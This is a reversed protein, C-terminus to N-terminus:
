HQKLSCLQGQEQLNCEGGRSINCNTLLYDEASSKVVLNRRISNCSLEQDRFLLGNMSHKKMKGGLFFAVSWEWGGLIVSPGWELGQGGVGTRQVGPLSDDERPALM